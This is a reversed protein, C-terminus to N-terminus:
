LYLNTSSHLITFGHFRISSPFVSQLHSSSARFAQLLHPAKNFIVLKLDLTLTEWGTGTVPIVALGKRDPHIVHPFCLRDKIPLSFPALHSAFLLIPAMQPQQPIPPPPSLCNCRYISIANTSFHTISTKRYIRFEPHKLFSNGIDM